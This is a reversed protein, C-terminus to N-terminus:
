PRILVPTGLRLLPRLRDLVRESVRLCGYSASRGISSPDNTGHIALQNGGTWGAPLRTQIGSLGFAFTGYVSGTSFPVRDSVVYRGTPTPTSAAGTATRASFIVHDGRRISLRHASLDAHVSIRTTSTRLGRLRLWGTVAEGAYPVPVLGFRGDPSVRLVWARTAVGYYPSHAPVMGVVRGGGPRSTVRMTRELLVFVHRDRAIRLAASRLPFETPQPRRVLDAPEAERTRELAPSPAGSGVATIAAVLALLVPLTRRAANSM